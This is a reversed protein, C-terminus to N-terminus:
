PSTEQQHHTGLQGPQIVLLVGGDLAITALDTILENSVGRTSGPVLDEGDLPYLLGETEVRRAVGGIPLLTVLEGPRGHVTVSSRGVSVRAEGMQATVTTSALEPRALLLANALLHDLRGGHGGIVHVCAPEFSLAADLALELDTADKAVPHEDIVAGAARATELAQPAVSDFDGIAIDIQLGLAQAQDVGSDAAVVKTGPPVPPLHAPDVPDGGTVVIVMETAGQAPEHM